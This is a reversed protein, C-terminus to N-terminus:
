HNKERYNKQMKVNCILIWVFFFISLSPLIINFPILLLMCLLVGNIVNKNTMMYLFLLSGINILVVGFTVTEYSLLFFSLLVALLIFTFSKETKLGEGNHKLTLLLFLHKYIANLM